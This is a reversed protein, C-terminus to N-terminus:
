QFPAKVFDIEPYRAAADTADYIRSALYRCCSILFFSSTQLWGRRRDANTRHAFHLVPIPQKLGAFRFRGAAPHSESM